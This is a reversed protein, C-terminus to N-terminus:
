SGVKGGSGCFSRELIALCLYMSKLLNKDIVHIWM